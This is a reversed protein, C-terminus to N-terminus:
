RAGARAALHRVAFATVPSATLKAALAELTAADAETASAGLTTLAWARLTETAPGQAHTLVSTAAATALAREAPERADRLSRLAFALATLRAERADVQTAAAEVAKWAEDRKGRLAELEAKAAKAAPGEPAAALATARERDKAMADEAVHRAAEHTARASSLEADLTALGSASEEVWRVLCAADSGCRAVVEAVAQVDARTIVERVLASAHKEAAERWAALGGQGVVLVQARMAAARLDGKGDAAARALPGAAAAGVVLVAQWLRDPDQEDGQVSRAVTGGLESAAFPAAVAWAAQTAGTLAATAAQAAAAPDIAWALAFARASGALAAEILGAPVEAGGGQVRALAQAAVDGWEPSLAESALAAAARPAAAEAKAWDVRGLAELATKKVTAAEGAASVVGLLGEVLADPPVVALAAQLLEGHHAALAADKLAAVLEPAAEHLKWEEVQAAAVAVRAPDALGKRVAEVAEDSRGLAVLAALADGGLTPDDVQALMLPRAEVCQAEAARAMAIQADEGRRLKGVWYDCGTPDDWGCGSMAGLIAAACVAM